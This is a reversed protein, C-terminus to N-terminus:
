RVWVQVAFTVIKNKTDTSYRCSKGLADLASSALFHAESPLNCLHFVAELASLSRERAM